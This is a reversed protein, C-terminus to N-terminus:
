LTHSSATNSDNITTSYPIIHVRSSNSLPDINDADIEYPTDWIGTGDIETANPYREEYDGWYNGEGEFDWLV